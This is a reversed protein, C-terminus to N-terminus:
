WTSDVQVYYRRVQYTPLMNRPFTLMLEQIYLTGFGLFYTAQVVSKTVAQVLTCTAQYQTM